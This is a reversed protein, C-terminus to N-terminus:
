LSWYYIGLAREHFPAACLDYHPCSLLVSPEYSLRLSLFRVTLGKRRLRQMTLAPDVFHRIVRWLPPFSGLYPVM